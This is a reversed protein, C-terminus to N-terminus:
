EDTTKDEQHLPRKFVLYKTGGGVYEITTVLNWGDQGLEELETSPDIAEKKTNGRPPRVTQYEWRTDSDHRM